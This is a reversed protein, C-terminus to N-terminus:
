QVPEGNQIQRAKIKYTQVSRAFETDASDEARSEFTRLAEDFSKWGAGFKLLQLGVDCATEYLRRDNRFKTIGDYLIALAEQLMSIRDDAMLGKTQQARRMFLLAKLRTIPGDSNLDSEFIRIENAAQEFESSGILNSVLRHRPVRLTPAKSIIKRFLFNQSDKASLRGIGNRDCAEVLNHREIEYSPNVNDIFSDLLSLFEAPDSFKARRIIESIVPHRGQWTYIGHAADFDHEEVMGDMSELIPGITDASMRLARIITQRHPLIGSAELASLLRYLEQQPLELGAYERLIIDDLMETSFINRLCVFFDSSCRDVLRRKKETRSFGSFDKEALKAISAQRELLDLLSDIENTTLKSMEIHKALVYIGDSKTRHNWHAKSSCAIIQLAPPVDTAALGDCLRGLESIYKHADDLFLIGKQGSAVLAGNVALWRVPDFSMGTIHEWCEYGAASLGSLLQRALTTKGVGAVGLLVILPRKDQVILNEITLTLERQFTLGGVIDPYTAPSGYFMKAPDAPRATRAHQVDVVTSSLGPLDHVANGTPATTQVQSGVTAMCSTLDDLSGFAVRVGRQEVLLARNDDREFILAYVKGVSGSKARRRAAEQILAHLDSDSLSHGVILLNSTSGAALLRGYLDERYSEATAYDNETIILRSLSGDAVDKDITGHIKFIPLKQDTIKDFEFNTSIVAYEVGRKAYSKEILSDYNTTYIERWPYLPLDLLGGTPRLPYIIARLADVLERRSHKYEVLSAVETLTLTGSPIGFQSALLSALQPGSPAGSPISSGAGLLLSTSSPAIESCLAGITITM